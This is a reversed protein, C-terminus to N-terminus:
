RDEWLDAADDDSDIALSLIRQEIRDAPATAESIRLKLKKLDAELRDRSKVAKSLVEKLEKVLKRDVPRRNKADELRKELDEIKEDESELDDELDEKLKRFEDDMTARANRVTIINLDDGGNGFIAGLSNLAPLTLFGTARRDLTVQGHADKNQFRLTRYDWSDQLLFCSHMVVAQRFGPVRTKVISKGEGHVLGHGAPQERNLVTSIEAFHSQANGSLKLVVRERRTTARWADERAREISQLKARGYTGVTMLTMLLTAFLPLFILVELQASGGRQDHQINRSRKM